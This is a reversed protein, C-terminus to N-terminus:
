RPVQAELSWRQKASGDCTLEQVVIDDSTFGGPIDVCKGTSSSRLQGVNDHLWMQNGAGHCRVVQLMTRDDASGWPIDICMGSYQNIVESYGASPLIWRQTADDRCTDQTVLTHEFKSPPIGLCKGTAVSVIRVAPGSLVSSDQPDSRNPLVLDRELTRFVELKCNNADHIVSALDKQLVGTSQDSHYQGTGSLGLNAIRGVLGGLKAQADASLTVGRDSQQTPVSACIQAATETIMKLAQSTRSDQARLPGAVSLAVVSLLMAGRCRADAVFTYRQKRGEAHSCEM